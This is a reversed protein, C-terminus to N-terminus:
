RRGISCFLISYFCFNFYVYFFLSFYVCFFLIFMLGFTFVIITYCFM